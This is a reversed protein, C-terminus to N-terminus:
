VTCEGWVRLRCSRVGLGWGEFGMCAKLWWGSVAFSMLGLGEVKVGIGFELLTRKKLRGFGKSGLSQWDAPFCCEWVRFGLGAKFNSLFKKNLEDKARRSQISACCFRWLGQM